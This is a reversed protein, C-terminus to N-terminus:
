PELSREGQAVVPLRRVSQDDMVGGMKLRDERPELVAVVPERDTVIGLPSSDDEVGTGTV